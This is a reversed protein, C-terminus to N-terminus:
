RLKAFLPIFFKKEFFDVIPTLLYAIILGYYVPSLISNFKRVSTKISNNNWIFFVVMLIAIATFFITFGIQLYKKEIKIKM